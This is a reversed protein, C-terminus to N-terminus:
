PVGEWSGEAGLGPTQNLLLEGSVLKPPAALDSGFYRATALGCPLALAPAAAATQATAWLGVASELSNTIVYPTGRAALQVAVSLTRDPGGLRQPKLVIGAGAGADLLTEIVTWASASEDLFVPCPAERAAAALEGPTASANLPQEIYAPKFPAFARFYRLPDASWAENADLRLAASPLAARVAAVRAADLADDAGCKIKLTTLGEAALTEAHRALTAPERDTLLGNVLIKDRAGKGQLAELRDCAVLYHRLPLAAAAAEAALLATAFGCRVRSGLEPADLLAWAAERSCVARLALLVAEAARRVELPMGLNPPPAVEGFGVAGGLVCRVLLGQRQANEGKAWRYPESLALRYPRLEWVDGCRMSAMNTGFTSVCFCSASANSPKRRAVAEVIRALRPQGNPRLM